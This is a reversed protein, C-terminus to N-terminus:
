RRPFGYKITLERKVMTLEQVIGGDLKYKIYIGTILWEGSLKNIIKDDHQSQGKKNSEQTKTTIKSMNYLEVLVKQFRYLSYNPRKLRITMKLKQLFSLNNKNQIYSHHYNEYVNDTDIKGMYTGNVLRDYLLNEGSDKLVISNEDDYTISEINYRSIKDAIKDYYTVVHSYGNKINVNLSDNEITFKDIYLNTNDVDPNNTLILAVAADSEEESKSLDKDNIFSMQESIDDLMQDEINIYNLNYYFDIYGFMFSEDNSYSREIIDKIFEIKYNAPNLWVMEDATDTINSAFGLGTEESIEKLVNYSTGDYSEFNLVYLDDIDLIGDIICSFGSVSKGKIITVNSVKFDMKLAMLDKNSSEKFVSIVSNDLPYKDDLIDSTPDIFKVQLKPLFSDNYLKLYEIQSADVMIGNLFVFPYKSIGTKFSTIMDEGKDKLTSGAKEYADKKKQDSSFDFEIPKTELTARNIIEIM